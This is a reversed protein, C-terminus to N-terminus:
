INEILLKKEQEKRRIYEQQDKTLGNFWEDYLYKKYFHIMDPFPKVFWYKGYMKWFVM